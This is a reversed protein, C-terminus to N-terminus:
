VDQKMALLGSAFLSKTCPVEHSEAHCMEANVKPVAVQVTSYHVAVETVNSRLYYSVKLGSM